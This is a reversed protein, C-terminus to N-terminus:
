VYTFHENQVYVPKTIVWLRENVLAIFKLSNYQSQSDVTLTVEFVSENAINILPSNCGIYTLGYDFQNIGESEIRVTLIGGSEVNDLSNLKIRVFEDFLPKDEITGCSSCLLIERKISTDLPSILVKKTLNKGCFCFENTEEYHSMVFNESYKETIPFLGSKAENLLSKLVSIAIKSRLMEVKSLNDKLKRFHKSNFSAKPYHSSISAYAAELQKIFGNASPPMLKMLNLENFSSKVVNDLMKFSGSLGKTSPNLSVILVKNKGTLLWESEGNQTVFGKRELNIQDAFELEIFHKPNDINIDLTDLVKDEKYTILDKVLSYNQEPDGLLIYRGIENACRSINKNILSVIHGFTYGFHLLGLYWNCEVSSNDKVGPYLILSRLGSLLLTRWLPNLQPHNKPQHTKLGFCSDLFVNLVNIKSALVRNKDPEKSVIKKSGLYIEEGNGHAAIILNDMGKVNHEMLRDFPDKKRTYIYIQDNINQSQMKDDIMQLYVSNRVYDQVPTLIKATFFSLEALNGGIVFGVKKNHLFQNTKILSDVDPTFSFITVYNVEYDQLEEINEFEILKINKHYSYIQAFLKAKSGKEIACIAESRTKNNASIIQITLERLDDLNHIIQLSVKYRKAITEIHELPNTEDHVIPLYGPKFILENSIVFNLMSSDIVLWKLM